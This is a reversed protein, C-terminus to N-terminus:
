ETPFPLNASEAGNIKKLIKASISSPFDEELKQMDTVTWEIERERLFKELDEKWGSFVAYLSIDHVTISHKGCYFSKKMDQSSLYDKFMNDRDYINEGGEPEAIYPLSCVTRFFRRKRDRVLLINGERVFFIFTMKLRIKKKEKESLPIREQIGKQFASCERRLPCIGCQPKRGCVSAGLEMLAENHNGPDDHNLFDDALKQLDMEAGSAKINKEYSFFRSLVRKVNGDLVAYKKGCALSLVARATYPGVGPVTLADELNDPFVSGFRDRVYQAGKRLNLARSYYGLGKWAGAIDEDSSSALSNLDPYKKIFSLYKETMAEVRTQQLMTESVWVTYATRDKRFPLDRKSSHFWELLSGHM